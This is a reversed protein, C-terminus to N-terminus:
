CGYTYSRDTIRDPKKLVINSTSVSQLVASAGREFPEEDGMMFCTGWITLSGVDGYVGSLSLLPRVYNAANQDIGGPLTIGEPMIGARYCVPLLKSCSDIVLLVDRHNIFTERLCELYAAFFSDWMGKSGMILEMTIPLGVVKDALKQWEPIEVERTGFVIVVKFVNQPVEKIMKKMLNTKGSGPGGHVILCNGRYQPAKENIRSDSFEWYDEETALRRNALSMEAYKVFEKEM